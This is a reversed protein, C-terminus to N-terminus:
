LAKGGRGMKMQLSGAVIGLIDAAFRTVAGAADVNCGAATGPRDDIGVLRGFRAERAMQVFLGLEIQGRVMRDDFALDTAAIAVIRVFARHDRAAARFEHTLIFDAGLAVHLLEPREHELMLRHAFAAGGTVIRVSAHVGSHQDRAILREAQATVELPLKCSACDVNAIDIVRSQRCLAAAPTLSTM